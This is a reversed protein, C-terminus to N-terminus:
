WPPSHLHAAAEQDLYLIAREHRRLISAPCATSIPEELTRRVAEAKTPGPVICYLWTAAMLAPMTMTLATTPVQDISPFAGDHVQQQRCVEDLTVLKVTVEDEFNAVHPDNFAMHGNEGIGACVIDIPRENLLATYRACEALPDPANGDIFAVCGLHVKDFLRARLFNGFGQPADAPLGVYEDMHFAEVRQWDLGPTACLAALFENQSPAAAFVMRVRPQEALLARMRQAVVQAAARGMAKRTAYIEVRLREVQLSAVPIPSSPM